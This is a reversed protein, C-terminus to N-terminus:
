ELGVMISNLLRGAWVAGMAVLFWLSGVVDENAGGDRCWEGGIVEQFGRQFNGLKELGM